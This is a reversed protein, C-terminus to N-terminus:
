LIAIVLSNRTWLLFDSNSNTLVTWYNQPVFPRPIWQPPFAMANENTKVSTLVMWLFPLICMFCVSWLLLTALWKPFTRSGRLKFAQNATAIHAAAYEIGLEQQVPPAPSAIEPEQTLSM